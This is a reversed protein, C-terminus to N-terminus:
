LTGPDENKKDFVINITRGDATKGAVNEVLPTASSLITATHSEIATNSEHSSTTSCTYSSNKDSDNSPPDHSISYGGNSQYCSPLGPEMSGSQLTISACLRESTSYVVGDEVDIM